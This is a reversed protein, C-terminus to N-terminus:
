PWEGRRSREILEFGTDTDHKNADEAAIQEIAMFCRTVGVLYGVVAVVVFGAVVLVGAM